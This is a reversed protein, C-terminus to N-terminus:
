RTWWPATRTSRGASGIGALTGISGVIAAWAVFTIEEPHELYVWDFFV